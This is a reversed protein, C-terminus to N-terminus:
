RCGLGALRKRALGATTSRKGFPGWRRVVDGYAACAGATDGKQELAQGLWLSAQVWEFQNEFANCDGAARRLLREAEDLRGGLLMVHGVDADALL